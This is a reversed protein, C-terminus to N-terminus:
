TRHVRGRRGTRLERWVNSVFKDYASANEDDLLGLDAAVWAVSSALDEQNIKIKAPNGM